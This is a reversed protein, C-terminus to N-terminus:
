TIASQYLQIRQSLQTRKVSDVPNRLIRELHAIECALYNVFAETKTAVLHKGLEYDAETYTEITDSRICNLLHYYRNNEFLITEGSLNFGLGHVFRRVQPVSSQPSLILQKSATAIVQGAQLIGMITPGGMGTITLTDIQDALTVPALGNGLRLEIRDQLGYATVNKQAASLPGPVIDCGLVQQAKGGMVALIPIYGHDTGIDAVRPYAILEVIHHMRQGNLRNILDNYSDLNSM